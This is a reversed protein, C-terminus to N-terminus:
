SAAGTPLPTTRRLPSNPALLRAGNQALRAVQFVLIALWVGSLGWGASVAAAAAAMAVAAGMANARLLFGLEGCALCMGETAMSANHLLLSACAVGLVSHMGAVVEPSSTFAGHCLLAAAAIAVCNFVGVAAGLRMLQGALAGAARPSGLMAPMFSQASQSVADGLVGLVCFIAIMVGHSAAATPSLATAAQTVATFYAVKVAISAAIPLGLRWYRVLADASPLRLPLRTLLAPRGPGPRLLRHLLVAAAAAQSAVTAWAAGGIGQGLGLVLVADGVLNVGAALAIAHVPTAVDRVALCAAQGVAMVLAFPFGFGRVRTYLAAPQVLTTSAGPGIFAALVPTAFAVFLVGVALGVAAAVTVADAVAARTAGEDGRAWARAVLMTTAVALFGLLHSCNNSVATAPTLAALELLAREGSGSLGVASTDMLSLLPGAVWIGMSPLTFCLLAHM